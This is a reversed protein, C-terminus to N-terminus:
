KDLIRIEVNKLFMGYICSFILAFIIYGGRNYDTCLALLTLAACLGSFFLSLKMVLEIVRYFIKM